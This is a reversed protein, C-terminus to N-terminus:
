FHFTLLDAVGTGSGGKRDPHFGVAETLAAGKDQEDHGNPCNGPSRKM